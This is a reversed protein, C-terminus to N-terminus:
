EKWKEGGEIILNEETLDEIRFEEIRGFERAAEFAKEPLDTHIHLMAEEGSSIIDLSDGLASFREKLLEPDLNEGEIVMVAGGKEKIRELVTEKFGELFILFGLAGADVVKREKLKQIEKLPYKDKLLDDLKETTNQVSVKVESIIKDFLSILNPEEKFNSLSVEAAVSIPDLITGEKPDIFVKYGEKEGEKLAASLTESNLILLEEKLCNLFGRFWGTFIVGANGRGSSLLIGRRKQILAEVLDKKLRYNGQRIGKVIGNLTLSLNTGTDADPIPFYNMENVEERRPLLCNYFNKFIKELFDRSIEMESVFFKQIKDM